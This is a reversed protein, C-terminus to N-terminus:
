RSLTEFWKTKIKFGHFILSVIFGIGFSIHILAIATFVGPWLSIGNKYSRILSEISVPLLYIGAYAALGFLAYEHIFAALGLVIFGLVLLGPLFHRLSSQQPHKKIVAIKWYGYQMFQKFLKFYSSRPYYQIKIRADQIVKGGLERLRFSLEDDQNRVMEEDYMGVELLRQKKFCGGYVTDTEGFFEGRYRLAGGMAIPSRYALAISKQIYHNNALPVLVGGVNDAKTKQSLKILDRLYSRPHFCRADTRIIYEGRSHKIGLNMAYPVTKKPNDILILDPYKERLKFLVDRTGDYSMGDIVMVEFGGDPPEFNYVGEVCSEIYQVENRCPILVSVKEKDM